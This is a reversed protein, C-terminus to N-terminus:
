KPAIVLYDPERDPNEFGEQYSFSWKNVFHLETGHPLTPRSTGFTFYIKNQAGGLMDRLGVYSMDDAAAMFQDEPNMIEVTMHYEPNNEGWVEVRPSNFNWLMYDYERGGLATPSTKAYTTTGDANYLMMCNSYSKMIPLMCSYSNKFRVDQTMYLSADLLIDFGNVLYSNEVNMLVNEQKYSLEYVNHHMVIRLGDVTARDGIKDLTIKDGSKADYLTMDLLRDNHYSTDDEHYKWSNDGPYNGHNGGRTTLDTKAGTNFVFEYDTSGPCINHTGRKDTYTIEGLMWMGWAKRVFNVRYCIASTVYHEITIKDEAALTVVMSKYDKEKMAFPDEYGDYFNDFVEYEMYADHPGAVYGISKIDKKVTIEGAKYYKETLEALALEYADNGNAYVALQGDRYLFIWHDGRPDEAVKEDIIAKAEASLARSTDGVLLECKTETKENDLAFEPTKLGLATVANVVKGAFSGGVSVDGEAYVLTFASTAGFIVVSDGRLVPKPDNQPKPAPTPTSGPILSCAALALTAVTLVSALILKIAKMM